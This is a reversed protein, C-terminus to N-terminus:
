AKVIKKQESRYLVAMYEKNSLQEAKPNVQKEHDELLKLDSELTTQNELKNLIMYIIADYRELCDIEFGLHEIETIPFRELIEDFQDEYIINESDMIRGFKEKIWPGRMYKKIYLMLKWNLQHKM